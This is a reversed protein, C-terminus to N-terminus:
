DALPVAQWRSFGQLTHTHTNVTHSSQMRENHFTHIFCMVCKKLVLGVLTRSNKAKVCMWVVQGVDYAQQLSIFPFSNATTLLVCVYMDSQTLQRWQCLACKKNWCTAFISCLFSICVSKSYLCAYIYLLMSLRWFIYGASVIVVCM